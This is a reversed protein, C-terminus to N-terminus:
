EIERGRYEIVSHEARDCLAKAEDLGSTWIIENPSEGGYFLTVKYNKNIDIM